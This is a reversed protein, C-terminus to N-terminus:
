EGWDEQVQPAEELRLPDMSVVELETGCDPCRLIEGAVTGDPLAVAGDCIGCVGNAMVYEEKAPARVGEKHM